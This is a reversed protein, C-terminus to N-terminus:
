FQITLGLQFRRPLNCQSTVSGFGGSSWNKNPPCFVVRNFINGGQAEFRVGVRENIKTDKYLNLDENYFAFGRTHPDTRPANGFKLSGPDAWGSSLLYRDTAPDNFDKNVGADGEVVRNPRKASNFLLGSM